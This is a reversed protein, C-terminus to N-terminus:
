CVVLRVAVPIPPGEAAAVGGRQVAGGGCRWGVVRCAVAGGGRRWRVAVAGRHSSSECGDGSSRSQNSEGLELWQWHQPAPRSIVAARGEQGARREGGRREACGGGRGREAAGKLYARTTQSGEVPRERPVAKTRKSDDALACAASAAARAPEPARMSPWGRVTLEATSRPSATLAAASLRSAALCSRTLGSPSRRPRCKARCPSTRGPSSPASARERASNRFRSAAHACFFSFSALGFKTMEVVRRDTRLKGGWTSSFIRLESATLAAAPAAAPLAPPWARCAALRLPSRSTLCTLITRSSCRRSARPWGRELPNPKMWNPAGGGRAAAMKVVREVV